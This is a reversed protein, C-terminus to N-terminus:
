QLVRVLRQGFIALVAVLGITVASVAAGMSLNAPDYVFRVRHHGSPMEVARFHVNARLIPTPRGDIDAQWGPYWPDSLVLLSASSSEVDIVVEEPLGRVLDAREAGRPEELRPIAGAELITLEGPLWSPEFIAVSAEDDTLAIARHTLYARPLPSSRRYVRVEGDTRVSLSPDLPLAWQQGADRGQLTAGGIILTTEGSMNQVEILELAGPDLRVDVFVTAPL